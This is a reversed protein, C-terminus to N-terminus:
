IGDSVGSQEMALVEDTPTRDKIKQPMPLIYDIKAQRQIKTAMNVIPIFDLSQRIIRQNNIERHIDPIIIRHRKILNIGANRFKQPLLLLLYIPNNLQFTKIINVSCSINKHSLRGVIALM